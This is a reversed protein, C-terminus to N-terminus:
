EGKDKDHGAEGLEDSQAPWEGGEIVARKRAIMEDVRRIYQEINKVNPAREIRMQRDFLWKTIAGAGMALIPTTEEMIDINYICQRGPKAYGVNELNGAMYKQRYLYYPRYGAAMLVERANDVMSQAALSAIQQHGRENLKSGHKIALTHVTISEPNLAIARRLSNDFDEESEGPLACILDMNIHDFGMQRALAYAQVTQAGTHKRGITRLTEDSFTQPNVSIRTIGLEKFMALHGESITDPRGAEVTWEKAGPFLRQAAEIVRRLAGPDISTPTGGGVYAARVTRGGTGVLAAAGEMERILADVYPGVLAGNGVEGSSFSCYDCRTTCFPIGIYIDFEGEGPHIWERQMSLIEALLAARVSDVDFASRMHWEAAEQMLGNDIAEYMLRTPRIGTLSGWPPRVGTVRRMLQYLGTKAARKIIRKIRVKDTEAPASVANEWEAFRWDETYIGGSETHEHWIVKDGGGLSVRADPLFLKIVDQFEVALEPLNTLLHYTSM